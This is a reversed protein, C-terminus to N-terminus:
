ENGGVGKELKLPKKKIQVDRKAKCYMQSYHVVHNWTLVTVWQARLKQNAFPMGILAPTMAKGRIIDQWVPM